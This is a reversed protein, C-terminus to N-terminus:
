EDGDATELRRLLTVSEGMPGTCVGAFLTDTRRAVSCEVGDGHMPITFRLRDDELGVDQMDVRGEELMMWMSLSDSSQDMTILMDFTQMGEPTLEAKWDGTLTTQASAGSISPILFSAVLLIRKMISDLSSIM